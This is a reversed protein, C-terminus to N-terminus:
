FMCYNELSSLMSTIGTGMGFVSTLSLQASFVSGATPSVSSVLKSAVSAFANSATCVLGVSAFSFVFAFFFSFFISFAISFLFALSVSIMWAFFCASRSCIAVSVPRSDSTDTESGFLFEKTESFFVAM